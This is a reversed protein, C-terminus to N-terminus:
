FAYKSSFTVRSINGDTENEVERQGYMAEIGMTLRPAVDWLVATYYSEVSKVALPNVTTLFDPQDITLRSYGINFRATEGFPHRWAVFGGTSSIEKLSSSVIDIAASNAANLGVYRGLGDGTFVNFRIDDRRGVKLRGAISAAVVSHREDLAGTEHRLEHVLGSISVSGCDGKINYRVVLDPLLNTDSEIRTAGDVDTVTSNGNELALQWPGATYRIQAQRIFVMGDSLALFSASEPISSTDQFTSWTQGIRWNNYDLFAHRLRPSFSSSVRENGQLSGLFDLEVYGLAKKGNIMRDATVSIRSAEATFDTVAVGDGGGVPTAGPIYFDRAISNSAIAGDSTRTHHFDFDVYGGLKFRTGNVVLSNGQPVENKLAALEAELAALRGKIKAHGKTSVSPRMPEGALAFSGSAVLCAVSVGAISKFITKM